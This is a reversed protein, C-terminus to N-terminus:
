VDGLYSGYLTTAVKWLIIASKGTASLTPATGSGGAKSWTVSPWTIAYAGATVLLMISQGAALSDTPSSAASLTWQQVNGNTASIAPTTGSLSYVTDTSGTITPLTLTKNSLTETGSLTVEGPVGQIGQIGQIGQDGQPGTAGTAGTDGQIGQIGQPGQPGTAGTDGQIGQIGQIGQPGTDGTDGKPGQILGANVWTAGDWVYLYGTILWGDGEINGSSPLSGVDAVTGKINLGAGTDGKEGQIGQPGVVYGTDVTSSDTYTLVLHGSGNVTASVVERMSNLYTQASTASTAAAVASDAAENASAAAATITNINNACTTIPSINSVVSSVQSSIGAVTNISTINTSVTEINDAASVIADFNADFNAVAKISDINNAVTTIDGSPNAPGDAEETIYGLDYCYDQGTLDGSVIIIDSMHEAVTNVAGISESQKNAVEELVNFTQTTDTNLNEATLNTANQYTVLPATSTIREVKVTTGSIPTTSLIVTHDVISYDSTVDGDISVKVYEPLMYTFPISYQTTTGDAIYTEFTTAM